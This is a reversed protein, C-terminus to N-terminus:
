NLANCTLRDGHQAACPISHRGVYINRACSMRMLLDFASCSTMPVSAELSPLFSRPQSWAICTSHPKPFTFRNVPHVMCIENFIVVYERNYDKSNSTDSNAVHEHRNLSPCLEPKICTSTCSRMGCKNWMHTCTMMVYSRTGM